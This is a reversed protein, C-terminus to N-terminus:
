AVLDPLTRFQIKGKNNMKRLRGAEGTGPNGGNSWDIITRLMRGQFRFETVGQNRESEVM